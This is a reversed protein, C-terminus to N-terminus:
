AGGLGQALVRRRGYLTVEALGIGLRRGLEDLPVRAAPEDLVIRGAEVVVVRDAVALAADLDHLVVAIGRGAIAWSRITRLNEIAHPLDLHSTPEDLLVFETEQALLGAFWVRQREGDSLTDLRREAFGTLELSALATAVTTDETGTAHWWDHHAFRMWGVVQRVTYGAPIPLRAPALFGLRRARDRATFSRLPRGELTVDGRSPELLGAMLRLLTSKGAGNRGVIAVLEGRGLQLEVDALLTRGGVSVWARHIAIGPESM